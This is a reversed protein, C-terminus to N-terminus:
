MRVSSKSNSNQWCTVCSETMKFVLQSDGSVECLFAQNLYKHDLNSRLIWNLGVTKKIFIYFERQTQLNPFSHLQLYLPSHKYPSIQSSFSSVITIISWSNVLSGCYFSYRLIACSGTRVCIKSWSSKTKLYWLCDRWEDNM